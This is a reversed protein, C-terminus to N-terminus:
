SKGGAGSIGASIEGVVHGAIIEAANPTAFKRVAHEFREVLVPDEQFTRVARSLSEISLNKQEIVIAAGAQEFVKANKLQHDDAATPLPM